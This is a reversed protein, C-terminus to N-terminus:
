VVGLMSLLRTLSDDVPAAVIRGANRVGPLRFDTVLLLSSELDGFAAEVTDSLTGGGVHPISPVLTLGVAAAMGGVYSSVVINSMEALASAYLTPKKTQGLPGGLLLGGMLHAGEQTVHMMWRLRAGGDVEFHVSFAAGDPQLVQHVGGKPAVQARPPAVDVLTGLLRGLSRAADASGFQALQRLAEVQQPTLELPSVPRRQQM